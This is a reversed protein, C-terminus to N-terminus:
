IKITSINNFAVPLAGIRLVFFHITSFSFVTADILSKKRLSNFSSGDSLKTFINFVYYIDTFSQYVPCRKIQKTPLGHPNVFITLQADQQLIQYFTKDSQENEIKMNIHYTM